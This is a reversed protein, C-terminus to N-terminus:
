AQAPGHHQCRHCNPCLAVANEVTDEGGQALPTNHHVELYPSGDKRRLFPAKEACRECVGKARLLVEAVVDPNREFVYVTRAIRVPTQPAAALRTQRTDRSDRISLEVQKEFAAHIDALHVPEKHDDLRLRLVRAEQTALIRRNAKQSVGSQERYAIHQRLAELALSLKEPGRRKGIAELFYTMDSSSLARKFAMGQDLKVLVYVFYSASSLKVGLDQHIQQTALKASLTGDVVREAIRYLVEQQSTNM